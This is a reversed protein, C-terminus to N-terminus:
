VNGIELASSPVFCVSMGQHPQSSSWPSPEQTSRYRQEGEQVQDVVQQQYGTFSKKAFNRGDRVGDFLALQCSLPIAKQKSYTRTCICKPSVPQM